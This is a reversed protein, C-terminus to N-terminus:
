CCTPPPGGRINECQTHTHKKINKKEDRKVSTENEIRKWKDCRERERGRVSEGKEGLTENKEPFFFAFFEGM